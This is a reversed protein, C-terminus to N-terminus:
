ALFSHFCTRIFTVSIISPRFVVPLWCQKVIIFAWLRQAFVNNKFKFLFM